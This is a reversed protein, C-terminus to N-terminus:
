NTYRQIETRCFNVINCALFIDIDLINKKTKSVM